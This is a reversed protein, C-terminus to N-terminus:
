CLAIIDRNDEKYKRCAEELGRAGHDSAAALVDVVTEPRIYIENCLEQEVQALLESIGFYDAAHLMDVLYQLADDIDDTNAPSMEGTYIHTVVADLVKMTFDFTAEGTTAETMGTSMMSKFVGSGAALVIRHARLPPQFPGSDNGRIEFDTLTGHRRFENLKGLLNGPNEAPPRSLRQISKLTKVGAKELMDRFPLLFDDVQHLTSTDYTLGLVLNSTSTWSRLFDEKRVNRIGASIDVNLWIEINRDIAMIGVKELYRYSERIDVICDEIQDDKINERHESIFRLHNVVTQASLRRSQGQFVAPAPDVKFVPLQSWAIPVESSIIGDNVTTLGGTQHYIEVMKDRRHSQAQTVDTPIFRLHTLNSLPSHSGYQTAMHITSNWVTEADRYLQARQALDNEDIMQVRQEISQASQLMTRPNVRSILKSIHVSLPRLKPHLFMDLESDRFAAMFTKERHDYLTNARCFRRNGDFLIPHDSLLSRYHHQDGLQRLFKAYSKLETAPIVGGQAAITYQCIFESASVRPVGLHLLKKEYTMQRSNDLFFGRRAVKSWGVSQYYDPSLHLEESTVWTEAGNPSIVNWIPAKKIMRKFEPVHDEPMSFWDSSLFMNAIHDYDDSSRFYIFANQITQPSRDLAKLLRYLGQGNLFTETYSGFSPYIPFTISNIIRLGPCSQIFAVQRKYNVNKDLNVQDLVLGHRHSTFHDWPVFEWKESRSQRVALLPITWHSLFMKIDGVPLSHLATWLSQVMELKAPTPLYQFREFLRPIDDWRTLRVNCSSNPHLLTKRLEQAIGQHVVIDPRHNLLTSPLRVGGDHSETPSMLYKVSNSALVSVLSDDSLVILSCDVLDNLDPNDSLVFKLLQNVVDCFTPSPDKTLTRLFKQGKASLKPTRLVSRLLKPTIRKIKSAGEESIKQFGLLAQPGPRIINFGGVSNLFGIVVGHDHDMGSFIPPIDFYVHDSNFLTHTVEDAQSQTTTSSNQSLNKPGSGARVVPYLKKSGTAVSNWFAASIVKEIATQGIGPSRPWHRYGKEGEKQMILSLVDLYIREAMFSLIWRNWAAGEEDDKEDIPLSQRNSQIAMDATFMIPLDTSYRRIPLDM